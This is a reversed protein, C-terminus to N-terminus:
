IDGVKRLPTLGSFFGVSTIADGCVVDSITCKHHLSIVKYLGNVNNKANLSTSNLRQFTKTELNILQGITLYPEFLIDFTVLNKERLPTNLLGSASSITAIQGQICESNALIYSKGNDIFFANGSLLRLNEVASGTYSSSRSTVILNRNDDFIFFDGIAGFSVDPLYGMLNTYITQMPTGGPFSAQSSILGNAFSNGGDFCQITTIFDVGERLSWAQTINGVFVLPLNKGYGANLKIKRFTYGYDSFDFRILDRNKPSLNTLRIQAYNADGLTNRNIDFEITTPLTITLNTNNALEITLSYNRGLKIQPM